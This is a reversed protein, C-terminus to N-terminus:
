PGDEDRMQYDVWADFDRGHYGDCDCNSKLCQEQRSVEVVRGRVEGWCTDTVNEGWGDEGATERDADLAEQARERAEGATKHLQFGEEPVYSFFKM